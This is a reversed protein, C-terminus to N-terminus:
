GWQCRLFDFSWAGVALCPDGLPECPPACQRQRRLSSCPLPTRSHVSFPRPVDYGRIIPRVPHRLVGLGRRHDPGGDPSGRVHASTPPLAVEERAPGRAPSVEGGAPGDHSPPEDLSIILQFLIVEGCRQTEPDRCLVAPVLPLGKSPEEAVACGASAEALVTAREGSREKWEPESSTEEEDEDPESPCIRTPRTRGTGCRVRNASSM